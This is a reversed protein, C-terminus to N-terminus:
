IHKWQSLHHPHPNSHQLGWQTLGIPTTAKSLWYTLDENHEQWSFLMNQGNLLYLRWWHQIGQHHKWAIGDLWGGCSCKICWWLCHHSHHVLLLSGWWQSSLPFSWAIIPEHSWESQWNTCTDPGHGTPLIPLPEPNDRYISSTSLTSDLNSYLQISTFLSLKSFNFPVTTLPFVPVRTSRWVPSRVLFYM